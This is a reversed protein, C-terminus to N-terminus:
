GWRSSLLHMKFPNLIKQVRIASKTNPVLKGNTCSLWPVAAHAMSDSVGEQPPLPTLSSTDTSLNCM